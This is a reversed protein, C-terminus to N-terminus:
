ASKVQEINLMIKYYTNLNNFIKYDIFKDNKLRGAVISSLVRQDESFKIISERSFDGIETFEEYKDPDILFDSAFKNALRENAEYLELDHQNTYFDRNLIHGLEHLLSFWFIDARKNKDTILLLVSGNKFKKCAGNLGSNKLHPLGVLVIGCELLIEGLIPFFEEYDKLVLDKIDELRSKLKLIDLKNDTANRSINEAIELMINANIISEEKFADNSRYSVQSNFKKFYLLSAVNLKTRLIEKKEKKSYKKDEIIGHNKFYKIDIKDVLDDEDKAKKDSIEVKKKDYANQLNMWTDFSIGTLQELKYALDPSISSLGNVLESVTKPSTGLRDAFENQSINLDNIIDEIYSGPHFGILNEYEIYNSM